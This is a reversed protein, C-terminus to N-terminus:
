ISIKPESGHLTSSFPKCIQVNEVEALTQILCQMSTEKQLRGQCIGGGIHLDM